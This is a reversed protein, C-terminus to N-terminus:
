ELISALAYDSNYYRLWWTTLVWYNILNSEVHWKGKQLDVMGAPEFFQHCACQIAFVGSV